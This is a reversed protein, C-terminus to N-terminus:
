KTELQKKIFYGVLKQPRQQYEVLVDHSSCIQDGDLRNLLTVCVVAARLGSINCMAAFVSSEMEINRVGAEYAAKLYQMKEEETYSCIAGDLRAQGEYFDLTCMTNGIVTNYENIEQSCQALEKALEPDLKTNRIITKGLVIQEFQPEFCPNVSKDTIVVSGPEIGIGGSTGIRIVIVDTCKSHYLLKILEHLMISISPIGMGHSISLVPGVKYMAYRDTGACINPIDAKPDGIKLEGAIYQAFAKMRSPSGGVCVFKVDGFLAPFNHTNTGLDFHYLIDDKMNDLHPNPLHVSKKELSGNETEKVPAM